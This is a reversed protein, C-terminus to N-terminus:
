GIARTSTYDKRERVGIVDDDEVRRGFHKQVPFTM